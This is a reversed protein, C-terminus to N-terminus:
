AAAAYVNEGREKSEDAEVLPEDAVSTVFWTAAQSILSENSDQRSIARTVQPQHLVEDFDLPVLRQEVPQLAPDDAIAPPSIMESTRSLMRNVLEGYSIFRIELAVNFASALRKLTSVSWQGYDPNEIHHIREQAMDGARAGLERQTWGRSARMERIQFAIGTAINESWFADRYDRSGMLAEVLRERETTM